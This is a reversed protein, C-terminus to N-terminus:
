ACTLPQESLFVVWAVNDDAAAGTGVSYLEYAVSMRGGSTADVRSSPIQVLYNGKGAPGKGGTQVNYVILRGHAVKGDDGKVIVPAGCFFPGSAMTQLGRNMTWSDVTPTINRVNTDMAQQLTSGPALEVNALQVNGPPFSAPASAQPQAACALLVGIFSMVAMGDWRNVRSTQQM